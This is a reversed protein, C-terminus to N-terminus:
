IKYGLKNSIKLAYDRIIKGKEEFKEKPLRVSPGTTWLLAIPTGNSSFIPAGLCHVGELEEAYDVAYGQNKIEKLNEILHAKDKVTNKTYRVIELRDVLENREQLECFALYAKGPASAHLIIKKGPKVYFTFENNGIVQELMVVHDNVVTGLLVTEDIEDKLQRMLGLSKEILSEDGLASLGLHLFKKTLRFCNDSEKYMYGSNTFTNLIRFVSTKALGTKVVLDQLTLGEKKDALLEIILIAKEINPVTNGNKEM